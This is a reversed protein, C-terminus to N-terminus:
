RPTLIAAAIADAIFTGYRHLKWGQKLVLLEYLEPSSYTWLIAGAEEISLGPRLHSAIGTANDTMRALRQDSIERELEAMEPDNVAAARLLLLVPAIRPAVETTLAGWGRIIEWPDTEDRQLADSRTEAHVSGGGALAQQCIARVLGPKGGFGKYITEVSVGAHTAILTITTAAFGDQLFL